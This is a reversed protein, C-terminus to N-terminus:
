CGRLMENVNSNVWFKELFTAGFAHTKERQNQKCRSSHGVLSSESLPRKKKVYFYHFHTGEITSPGNGTVASNNLKNSCSKSMWLRMVEAVWPQMNLHPLLRQSVHGCRYWCGLMSKGRPELGTTCANNVSLFTTYPMLHTEHPDVYIPWVMLHSQLLTTWFRRSMRRSLPLGTALCKLKVPWRSPCSRWTATSKISPVGFGVSPFLLAM